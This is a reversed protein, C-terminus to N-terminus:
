PANRNDAIEQWGYPSCAAQQLTTDPRQVAIRDEREIRSDDATIYGCCWITIAVLTIDSIYRGIHSAVDLAAEDNRLIANRLHTANIRTLRKLRSERRDEESAPDNAQKPPPGWIVADSWAPKDYRMHKGRASM